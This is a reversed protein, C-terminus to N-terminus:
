SRPARSGSSRRCWSARATMFSRRGFNLGLDADRALTATTNRSLMDIEGSQLATFRQQASLPAYKVKTADGFVAAAVARCVDVDLGRYNGQADPTSFGTSSTNVGCTLVGKSKVSDLTGAQAQGILAVSAFLGGVLTARAYRTTM